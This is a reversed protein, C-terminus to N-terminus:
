NFIADLRKLVFAPNSFRDVFQVPSQLTFPENVFPNFTNANLAQLVVPTTSTYVNGGPDTATAFFTMRSTAPFPAVVGNATTSSSPQPIATLSTTLTGLPGVISTASVATPVYTASSPSAGNATVQFTGSGTSNGVYDIGAVNITINNIPGNYGCTLNQGIFTGYQAHATGAIAFVALIFLARTIMKMVIRRISHHSTHSHLTGSAYSEFNFIRQRRFKKWIALSSATSFFFRGGDTM